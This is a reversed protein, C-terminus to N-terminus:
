FGGALRRIAAGREQKIKEIARVLILLEQAFEVTIPTSELPDKVALEERIRKEEAALSQLAQDFQNIQWVPDPLDPIPLPVPLTSIRPKGDSRSSTEESESQKQKHDSM